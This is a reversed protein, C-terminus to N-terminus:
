PIPQVAAQQRENLSKRLLWPYGWGTTLVGAIPTAWAVGSTGYPKVLALALILNLVVNAVFFRVQPRLINAPNLIASRCDIWIRLLFLATMAYILSHPFGSIKGHLWRRIIFDGFILLVAGCGAMLAIGAALSMKLHRRIWSIDGRRFAEGYAPTLPGLLVLFLGYAIVFVQGLLAYPTVAATSVLSGIIFKDCQFMILVGIQLLFMSFGDGVTSRVISRDFDALRPLFWPRSSFFVLSNIASVILPTACTAVAIGILGFRTYIVAISALLTALKTAGDWAYATSQEQYATYVAFPICLAFGALISAGTIWVVWPTMAAVRPSTIQFVRTWNVLSTAITWGILSIILVGTLTLFLSSIYRRAMNRDGSVHCDILRNVLGQQVGVNTLSLLMSMGVIALFLGYEEQGLYSLFLPMTILPSLLSLPKLLLATLVSVRLRRNRETAHATSDGQAARLAAVQQDIQLNDSEVSSM